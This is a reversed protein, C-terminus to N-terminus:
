PVPCQASLASFVAASPSVPRASQAGQRLQLIRIAIQWPGVMWHLWPSDGGGYMDNAEHLSMAM